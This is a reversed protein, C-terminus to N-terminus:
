ANWEQLLTLDAQLLTPKDALPEILGQTFACLTDVGPSEQPTLWAAIRAIDAIGQSSELASSLICRVGHSDATLILESLRYLSGILMPKLVLATLGETAAFEYDPDNLTEDLAYLVGTAQYVAPNDAPDACPEEIYEIADQPLCACFDIAQELSFARNADLRLKLRPNAALIQHILEIEQATPLQGVKVKVSHLQPPLASVRAKVEAGVAQIDQSAAEKDFYVLPIEVQPIRVEPLQATLKAELLSLGLAASPFPSEDALQLLQQYSQGPLSTLKSQLYDTVQQLSERSFGTLPNADVDVGSLPAIESHFTEGLQNSISLLLGQRNDIRAAGVPLCPQLPIQYRYLSVKSIRQTETPEHGSQQPQVEHQAGHTADMTMRIQEMIADALLAPQEIHVNHGADRINLKCLRSQSAWSDALASFKTDREGAFFWVPCGLRTPLQWMDQQLALSTARYCNVLAQPNAHRRKAVLAQRQSDTLDAFVPQQYWDQLVEELETSEFREAWANDNIARADKEQQTLLGPHCSELMLAKLRTPSTQNLRNALHLAVRGGLSYGLLSFEDIGHSDLTSIILDACTDFGPTPLRFQESSGHGPLDVCLCHFEPTLLPLLPQWDDANGLFGHLLMLAPLSPDGHRSLALESGTAALEASM